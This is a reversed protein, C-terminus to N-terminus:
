GGSVVATAGDIEVVFVHAGTQFVSAPHDARASWTEGGIKVLGSREDVTELVTAQQGPLADVNTLVRPQTLLHRRAIPRVAGLLLVSVAGFVVFDVWIPPDFVADVGGAALAGGALMLLVLEGGFLEAIILGIGLIVWVLASM